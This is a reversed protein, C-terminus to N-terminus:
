SIKGRPIVEKIRDWNGCRRDRGRKMLLSLATPILDDHIDM